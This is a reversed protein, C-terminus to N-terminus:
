RYLVSAVSCSALLGEAENNAAKIAQTETTFPKMPAGVQGEVRYVEKLFDNVRGPFTKPETVRAAALQGGRSEQYSRTTWTM